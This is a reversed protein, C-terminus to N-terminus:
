VNEDKQAGLLNELEVIATNIALAKTAYDIGINILGKRTGPRLTSLYNDFMSNVHSCAEVLESQLEEIRNRIQEM